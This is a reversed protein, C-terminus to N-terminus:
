EGEKEGLKAKRIDTKSPPRSPDRLSGARERDLAPWSRLMRDSIAGETCSLEWKQRIWGKLDRLLDMEARIDSLKRDIQEVQKQNEALFAQDAREPRPNRLERLVYGQPECRSKKFQEERKSLDHWRSACWSELQDKSVADFTGQRLLAYASELVEPVDHTKVAM